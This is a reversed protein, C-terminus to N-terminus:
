LAELQKSQSCIVLAVILVAINVVVIGFFGSFVGIRSFATQIMIGVLVVLYGYLFYEAVRSHRRTVLLAMWYPFFLVPGLKLLFFAGNIFDQGTAHERV